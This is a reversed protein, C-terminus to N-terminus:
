NTETFRPPFFIAEGTTYNADSWSDGAHTTTQATFNRGYDKTNFSEVDLLTGPRIRPQMLAKFNIGFNTIEASLLGSSQNLLIPIDDNPYGLETVQILGSDTTTIDLSFENSLDNFINKLNDVFSKGNAFKKRLKNLIAKAISVKRGNAAGLAKVADLVSDGKGFSKSQLINLYSHYDVGTRLKMIIDPGQRRAVGEQVEGSYIQTIIGESEYGTLIEIKPGPTKRPNFPKSLVKILEPGPNYLEILGPDPDARLVKKIEYIIRITNPPPEGFGQVPDIFFVRKDLGTIRLQIIRNLFNYAGSVTM